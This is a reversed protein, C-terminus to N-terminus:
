ENKPKNVNAFTFSLIPKLLKSKDSTRINSVIGWKEPCFYNRSTVNEYLSNLEICSRNKIPAILLGLAIRTPFYFAM